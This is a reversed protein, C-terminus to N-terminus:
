LAQQLLHQSRFSNGMVRLTDYLAASMGSPDLRLAMSVNVIGNSHYHPIGGIPAFGHSAYFPLHPTNCNVVGYRFTPDAMVCTALGCTFLWNVIKLGRYDPLVVLRSGEILQENRRQTQHYFSWYTDPIGPYSLFPYPAAPHTPTTIEVIPYGNMITVAAQCVMRNQPYVLRVYGAKRRGEWIGFHRAHTDFHDLDIRHRNEHIFVRNHTNAFLTYRLRLWQELDDADTIERFTFTTKM